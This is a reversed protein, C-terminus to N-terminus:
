PRDSLRDVGFGPAPIVLMHTDGGGHQQPNDDTYGNGKGVVHIAKGSLSMILLPRAMDLTM